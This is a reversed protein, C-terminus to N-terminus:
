RPRTSERLVVEGRVSIVRPSRGATNLALEAARVGMEELPLHVTTLSPVLDRLTAIDDFGAVAVEDPVAIGRARFAAIAGVAMVDNTAFVCAGGIDQEAIRSGLEFGGDRTFAGHLVPVSRRAVGRGSLGKLFGALRDASTTLNKPGALVIFRRHGLDYLAEALDRAGARNLPQVTHSGLRNQSIVAVRGGGGRFSDLEKNLKALYTQDTTRSGAIIIAQARQSHLTTVYKLEQEPIRRTSGLVVVFGHEEAVRVVGDAITSFYPDAVDHVILGVLNSAGRATAQALANPLYGLREAARLVRSRHPEGVKREGNLVRSATAVSVNAEAAVMALTAPGQWTM